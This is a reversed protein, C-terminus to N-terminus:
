RCSALGDIYNDTYDVYYSPILGRKGAYEVEVWYPNQGVVEGGWQQCLIKVSANKPITALVPNCSANTPRADCAGVSRGRIQVNAAWIPISPTWTTARPNPVKDTTSAVLKEATAGSPVWHNGINVNVFNLPATAAGSPPNFTLDVCNIYRNGVYHGGSAFYNGTGVIREAGNVTYSANLQAYIGKGNAVDDYLCLRARVSERKWEWNIGIEGVQNGAEWAQLYTTQYWKDAPLQAPPPFPPDPPFPQPRCTRGDSTQGAPCTACHYSGVDNVCYTGAACSAATTACENIDTCVYGDSTHGAACSACHYSSPDNVCYTGANCHATKTACEDIDRCTRGDGTQGAPCAACHYGVRDDICYDGANCLTADAACEDVANCGVRYITTSAAPANADPFLYPVSARPIRRIDTLGKAFFDRTADCTFQFLSNSNGFRFYRSAPNEDEAEFITAGPNACKLNPQQGPKSDVFLPDSAALEPVTGNAPFGLADKIGQQNSGCDLAYGKGNSILYLPMPASIGDFAYRVRYLQAQDSPPTSPVVVPLTREVPPMAIGLADYCNIERQVVGGAAWTALVAQDIPTTVADEWGCGWQCTRGPPRPGDPAAGQDWSLSRVFNWCGLTYVTTPDDKLRLYYDSQGKTKDADITRYIQMVQARTAADDAGCRLTRVPIDGTEPARMKLTTLLSQLSGYHDISDLSLDRPYGFGELMRGYNSGCAIQFVVSPEATATYSVIVPVSYPLDDAGDPNDYVVVETRNPAIVSANEVSSTPEEVVPSGRTSCGLAVAFLTACAFAPRHRM